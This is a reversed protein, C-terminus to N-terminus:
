ENEVTGTAIEGGMIVEETIETISVGTIEEDDM